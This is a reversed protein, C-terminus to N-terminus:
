SDKKQEVGMEIEGSPKIAYETSTTPQAETGARAQLSILWLVMRDAMEDDSPNWEEPLLTETFVRMFTGRLMAKHRNFRQQETETMRRKARSSVKDIESPLIDKKQDAARAAALGVSHPPESPEKDLVPAFPAKPRISSQDSM